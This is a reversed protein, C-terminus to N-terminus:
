FKYVLDFQMRELYPDICGSFPLVSCASGPLRERPPVLSPNQAADALRGLWLTYNLQVNRLAQYYLTFRHNRVNTAARLDSENFAGIVADKEIRVFTYGFQLDKPESQRGFQIEGWYASRERNRDTGTPAATGNQVIRTSRMNQEYNFLISIPFKSWNTRIDLQAISDLYLFRAAYGVTTGSAATRLTNSNPLSPRLEGGLAAAIRDSNIFNIGALHLALKMRDNLTWRSQLQGGIVFSDQGFATVQGAAPGSTSITGATEFFPLQFGVLTINNLVANKMDFSVQQWFGEPNLDSDFTLPTRVWPHAFKGAGVTVHNNLFKPRYQIFLRDFGVQKRTFFGTFSQNTSNVDELSGTAISIGGYLEDTINGILNFRARVRERHRDLAGRQFFPEYRMRLDGSLRFNGLQRFKSEASRKEATAETQTKSVRASLEHTADAVAELQREMLTLDSPRESQQEAVAARDQETAQQQLRQEMATLKQQQETLLARQAELQRAQDLLMEKLHQLQLEAATAARAPRETAIDRGSSTSHQARASTSWAVLSLSALVLLFRKLNQLHDM